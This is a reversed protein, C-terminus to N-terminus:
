DDTYPSPIQLTALIESEIGEMMEAEKEDIHDYGCLHLVGHVVLHAIHHDLPKNQQKAELTITELALIVDGLQCIDLPLGRMPDDEDFPFSLVNTTKDKGRFDHNLEQVHQDDSLVLVVEMNELASCSKCYDLFPQKDAREFAAKAAKTMLAEVANINRWADELYHLHVDIM